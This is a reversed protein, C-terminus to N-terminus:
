EDGGDGDLDLGAQSDVEERATLAVEENLWHEFFSFADSVECPGKIKFTLSASGGKVVDLQFSDIVCGIAVIVGDGSISDGFTCRYNKLKAEIPVKKILATRPIPTQNAGPIGDIVQQREIVDAERFLAHRLEPDLMDLVVNSDTLKIKATFAPTLEEGKNERRLQIHDLVVRHDTLEFM